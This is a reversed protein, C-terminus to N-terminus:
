MRMNPTTPHTRVASTMAAHPTITSFEVSNGLHTPHAANAHAAVLMSETGVVKKPVSGSKQADLPPHAVVANAVIGNRSHVPSTPTHVM